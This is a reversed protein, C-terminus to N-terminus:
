IDRSVPYIIFPFVYMVINLYFIHCRMQLLNVFRTLSLHPTAAIHRSSLTERTAMAKSISNMMFFHVLVSSVATHNWLLHFLYCNKYSLMCTHFLDPPLRSRTKHTYIVVISCLLFWLKTRIFCFAVINSAIAALILSSSQPASNVAALHM